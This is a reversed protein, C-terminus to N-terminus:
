SSKYRCHFYESSHMTDRSVIILGHTIKSKKSLLKITDLIPQYIPPGVRRHIRATVIRIMGMFTFGIFTAYILIFLAKLAIEIM